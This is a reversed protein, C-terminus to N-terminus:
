RTLLAEYVVTTPYHAPVVFTGSSDAVAEVLREAHLPAGYGMPGMMSNLFSVRDLLLVSGDSRELILSNLGLDRGFLNEAERCRLTAPLVVTRTAIDGVATAIGHGSRDTGSM